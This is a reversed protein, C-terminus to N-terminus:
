CSKLQSYLLGEVPSSLFKFLLLLQTPPVIGSNVRGLESVGMGLMKGEM